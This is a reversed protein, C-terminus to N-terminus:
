KVYKWFGNVKEIPTGKQHMYEVFVQEDTTTNKYIEYGLGSRAADLNLENGVYYVKKLAKNKAIEDTLRGLFEHKQEPTADVGLQYIFRERHGEWDKSMVAKIAKDELIAQSQKKKQEREQTMGVGGENKLQTIVFAQLSRIKIGKTLEQQALLLCDKIRERPAKTRRVFVTFSELTIPEMATFLDYLEDPALPIALQIPELTAGGQIAFAIKHVPTNPNSPVERILEYDFRLDTKDHIEMQCKDLVKKKFDGFLKYADLDISLIDRLESYPITHKGIRAWSRLYLYMKISQHSKLKRTNEIKYSFFDGDAIEIFYPKLKESVEIEIRSRSYQDYGVEVSAFMPADLYAIQGKKRAKPIHIVMELMARIQAYLEDHDNTKIGIKDYFDRVIVSCIREAPNNKLYCAVEIFMKQQMSTLKYKSMAIPNRLVVTNPSYYAKM